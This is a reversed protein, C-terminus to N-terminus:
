KHILQGFEEARSHQAAAKGAIPHSDENGSHVCPVTRSWMPTPTVSRQGARQVRSEAHGDFMM